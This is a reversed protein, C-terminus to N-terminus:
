LIPDRTTDIEGYAEAYWGKEATNDPNSASWSFIKINKVYPYKTRIETLVEVEARMRADPGYIPKSFLEEAEICVVLPDKEEEFKAKNFDATYWKSKNEIDTFKEFKNLKPNFKGRRSTVVKAVELLVKQFDYGLNYCISHSIELIQVFSWKKFEVSFIGVARLLDAYTYKIGTVSYTFDDDVSQTLPHDEYANISFICIDGIADLIENTNETKIADALEGLEEMVNRPYGAVQSEAPISSEARWERLMKIVREISVKYM